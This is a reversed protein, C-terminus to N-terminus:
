FGELGIAASAWMKAEIARSLATSRQQGPPCNAVIAVLYDVQADVLKQYREGQGDRLKHYSAVERAAERVEDLAPGVLGTPAYQLLTYAPRKAVPEASEDLRDTKTEPM